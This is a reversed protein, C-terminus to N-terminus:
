MSIDDDSLDLPTFQVGRVSYQFMPEPPPPPGVYPVIHTLSEPEEVIYEMPHTSTEEYGEPLLEISVAHSEVYAVHEVHEPTQEQFPIRDEMGELYM